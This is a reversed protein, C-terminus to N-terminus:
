IKPKCNLTREKCTPPVQYLWKAFKDQDNPITTSPTTYFNRFGANRKFIDDVSCVMQDDLIAQVKDKVVKNSINCAEPRNPFDSVDVMSVNMFPNDKTPNYCVKKENEIVNLKEFLEKKSEDTNLKNQYILFTLCGIIIPFYWIRYDRRIVYVLIAFYVSFRFLANLQRELSMSKDPIIEIVTSANVLFEPVNQYWIYQLTM